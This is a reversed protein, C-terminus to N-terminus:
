DGSILCFGVDAYNSNHLGPSSGVIANDYVWLEIVYGCPPMANPNETNL